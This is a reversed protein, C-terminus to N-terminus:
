SLYFRLYNINKHKYIYLFYIQFMHIKLCILDKTLLSKEYFM